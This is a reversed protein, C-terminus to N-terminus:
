NAMQMVRVEETEYKDKIEATVDALWQLFVPDGKDIAYGIPLANEESRLCDDGKPFVVLGPQSANLRPWVVNDIPGVDARGALIDEIPGNAGSSTQVGRFKMQPFRKPAWTEPPTGTLYAMTLDPSNLDDVTKLNALKPNAALGYFCLSARSYQVFDVVKKREDTMAMPAVTVDVQGTALIPIKTEHSVPTVSIGVGLRKAIEDTIVWASGFYQPGSGTTNEALWPPEALVAVNITGRAKIEDVKKSAGAAPVAVDASGSVASLTLGGAFAIGALALSIPRFRM